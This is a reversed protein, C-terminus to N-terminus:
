GGAKRLLYEVCGNLSALKAYDKEPVSVGTAKEIVIMFNLFDMSDLDLQERLNGDADITDAPTEPALAGLLRILTQRLADRDM